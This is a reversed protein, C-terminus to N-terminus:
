KPQVVAFNEVYPFYLFRWPHEVTVAQTQTGTAREDDTVTLTVPYTGSQRYGHVVSRGVGSRGDGFTWNYAAIQGDRDFSPSADFECSTGRCRLGFAAVPVHNPRNSVTLFLASTAGWQGSADQGRVYLMHRGASWGATDVTAQVNERASDWEGDAPVMESAISGAQWPPTGSSWQASVIAQVPERGQYRTDDITARLAVTAGAPVSRASLSLRVSDPGAPLSYPARAVKAAYRLVPLNHPLVTSEFTDCPQFFRTGLELTYAAAGSHGYAYDTSSGDVPYLGISQQPTYGNWYALKRGLTQLQAANPAPRQTFGWPWLVLEGYAHVDIFLGSANLPAAERLDPGRQDGFVRNMHTQLARVEPESAATPGRYNLACEDASSGECCAWQFDFNRNLDAGRLSSESACYNRNTNKRWLLGAEAQKRGDPNAHLVAHVEHYDLIWTLDPDSGYGEVLSEAFRTVLEATAYERAHLAANLLLVPKPGPVDQNTLRLVAIDYGGVRAEKQWSDGIDHWTALGPYDRVMRQAGSLTDEVTRYCPYGPISSAQVESAPGQHTPPPHWDPDPQVRFGASGLRDIEQPTLWMVHYSEADNTELLQAKFSLLLQTRQTRDAYHVRV